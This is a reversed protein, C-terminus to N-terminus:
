RARERVDLLELAPTAVDIGSVSMVQEIVTNPFVSVGCTAGLMAGTIAGITDTDGGINAAQILAKYPQQAYRRTLAFAAPVAENSEVSTGVMERLWTAFDEENRKRAHNHAYQTRAVVSARPSWHGPSGLRDIETLALELASLTDLGNIGLSVVGAVLAASEFGQTTNHTVMCSERVVRTFAEAERMDIAIGVPAVRMAAGNTTGETGTTGYEAGARIEELASKTSPGLLDLSGRARMTDEWALLRRALELSDIHGDGDILLSAVLLAQETDDTVHGAKMSPAIPQKPSADVLGDVRIYAQHIEEHSMSQTPMGLADGLALGTLAGIARDAKLAQTQKVFNTM